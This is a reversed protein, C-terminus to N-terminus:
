RNGEKLLIIVGLALVEPNVISIRNNEFYFSMSNVGHGKQAVISMSHGEKNVMVENRLNTRAKREEFSFILLRIIKSTWNTTITTFAFGLFSCIKILLHIIHKKTAM